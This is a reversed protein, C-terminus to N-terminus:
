YLNGYRKKFKKDELKKRKAEEAYLDSVQYVPDIEEGDMVAKLIMERENVLFQLM